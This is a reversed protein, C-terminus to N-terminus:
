AAARPVTNRTRTTTGGSRIRCEREFRISREQDEVIITECSSPDKYLSPRAKRFAFVRSMRTHAPIRRSTLFVRDTWWYPHWWMDFFIDDTKSVFVTRPTAHFHRRVYDAIDLARAFVVPYERTFVFAMHRQFQELFKEPAYACKLGPLRVGRAYSQYGYGDYLPYIFAPHGSMETLNKLEELGQRMYRAAKDWQGEAAQYNWTQPGLFHWGGVFDWQHGVMTGGPQQNPQRADIPSSFYPFNPMGLWPRENNAAMGGHDVVGLQMLTQAYGPEFESQPDNQPHKPDRMMVRASRADNADPLLSRARELGAGYVKVRQEVTLDPTDDFWPMVMDGFFRHFALLEQYRANEVDFHEIKLRYDVPIGAAHFTPENGEVDDETASFRLVIGDDEIVSFYRYCTEDGAQWRAIYNGKSQPQYSLSARGNVFELRHAQSPLGDLWRMDGGPVFAEGPDARELYNPFIAVDNAKISAPLHFHFEIKEGLKLLRSSTTLQAKDLFIPDM